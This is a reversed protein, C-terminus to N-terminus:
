SIERTKVKVAPNGHYIGYADLDEVAVSKVSLVSHSKCTVGPAVLAQAGIWVGDELVIPKVMLDFTTKTYNHNGTLLMAGQSLCVHNGLTVNELNDIWVEEGIWCHDGVSLRWPYKIKVHPKIVVGKGVKAGFVRLWFVRIGGFPFGSNFYILQIM